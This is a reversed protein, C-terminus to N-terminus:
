RSQWWRGTGHLNLHPNGLKAAASISREAIRLLAEAGDPETLNGEIYGTM